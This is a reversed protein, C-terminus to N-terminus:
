VKSRADSIGGSIQLLTDSIFQTSGILISNATTTAPTGPMPGLAQNAGVLQVGTQEAEAAAVAHHNGVTGEFHDTQSVRAEIGVLHSLGTKLDQVLQGFGRGVHFAEAGPPQRPRTSPTQRSPLGAGNRRGRWRVSQGPSVVGAGGCHPHRPSEKSHTSCFGLFDISRRNSPNSAGSPRRNDNGGCARLLRVPRSYGTSCPGKAGPRPESIRRVAVAYSVLGGISCTAGASRAPALIKKARSGVRDGPGWRWSPDTAGRPVGM